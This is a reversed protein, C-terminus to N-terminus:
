GPTAIALNVTFNVGVRSSSSSVRLLYSNGALLAIQGSTGGGDDDDPDLELLERGTSGNRLEVKPYMGNTDALTSITLTGNDPAIFSFYKKDDENVSEGTIQALGGTFSIATIVGPAVPHDHDNDYGDGDDDGDDFRDDSDNERDLGGGGRIRDRGSDGNLHDDGENGELTDRGVGGSIDDGGNGGSLYDNGLGGRIDDDGDDGYERDNGPGGDILDDDVGGTLLDNGVGGAVQDFGDDGRGTDNGRGGDISDDDDGGSIDDNGDEGFLHDDGLGGSMRDNGAGGYATDDDDGGDVTDNGGNGFLQDNESGGLLHDAARGGRLVDEGAGGDAYCRIATVNAFSDNGGLGNFVIQKVTSTRFTGTLIETGIDLSVSLNRGQQRVEAIDNGESGTLTLVRSTPDYGIGATLVIRGELSEVRLMNEVTRHLCGPRRSARRHTSPM